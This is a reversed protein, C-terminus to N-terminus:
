LTRKAARRDGGVAAAGTIRSPWASALKGALCGTELIRHAEQVDGFADLYQQKRYVGALAFGGEPKGAVTWTFDETTRALAKEVDGTNLDAFFRTAPNV